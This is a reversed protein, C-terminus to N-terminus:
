VDVQVDAQAMRRSRAFRNKRTEQIALQLLVPQGRLASRRAGMAQELLDFWACALSECSTNAFLGNLDRGQFPRQITQEFLRAVAERDVFLGVDPDFRDSFSAQVLYDHGHRRFCPGFLRENEADSYAPHSLSHQANVTLQLTWVGSGVSEPTLDPECEGSEAWLDGSESVRVGDLRMGAFSRQGLWEHCYASVNECTPVRTKFPDVDRNLYRHDLPAVCERLLADVEALNVAIGTDGQIPGRYFAELVYNHGHGSGHAASDDAFCRGFTQANQAASLKPQFYSHAASFEVRRSLRVVRGARLDLDKEM